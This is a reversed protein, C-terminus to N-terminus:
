FLTGGEDWSGLGALSGLRSWLRFYLDRAVTDLQGGAHIGADGHGQAPPPLLSTLSGTFGAGGSAVLLPVSTTTVLRDAAPLTVSRDPLQGATEARLWPGALLAVFASSPDQPATAGVESVATFVNPATGTEKVTTTITYTGRRAYSHSGTVQYTTGSLTVTGQSSTKDGWNITAVFASAPEVGNAHTFTAVVMNTVRRNSTTIAGSVNIAAEAVATTASATNNAPNSDATSSSVSAANTLNGDEILQVTVTASVTAGAAVTGLSFTIVGGSQTFTGQSTTASVFKMQSALSDTLVVGAADSPGSNTVTISYTITNGETSTAPGSTAVSLDANQNNVVSGSVTASNNSSNPDPTASTVSATDSFNAGNALNSPAGVVLTFTDTNGAAVSTATGTLTGGSQTFNFSDPNGAAPTISVLNSGTPLVDTLVVNQAANPGGNTLTITYSASTGATVSPPGSAAVSLDASTAPATITFQAFATGWVGGNAYENASWFTNTPAGSTNIDVTTGSYDGARHPSGDPGTMASNGGAALVGAEMSPEALGKGALYTSLAENASSEVYTMGIDGAPDIDASPFYTFVGAGPNIEGSQYLPVNVTPDTAATTNFDYWRAKAIGPDADSNVTQTLVLHEQGNVVRWFASDMRTDNTDILDASGGQAALANADGNNWARNGGSPDLVVNFHYLPVTGSYNVFDAPAASLVNAVHVLRLSNAQGATTGYNTEEAFWMGDTAAAGDMHAPLLNEHVITGSTSDYSPLDVAHINGLNSKDIAIVQVHDYLSNQDIGGPSFTFMNVTWVYATASTGFREFDGWLTSGANGPIMPGHGDTLDVQFKTWGATPDTTSSVAVDLYGKDNQLDIDLISIVWKGTAADYNVSPDSIIDDLGFLSHTMGPFFDAFSQVTGSISNPLNAKSGFLLNQNVAEVIHNPGAAIITDPPTVGQSPDYDLGGFVLGSLSPQVRDELRELTPHAGPM